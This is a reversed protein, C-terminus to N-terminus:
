KTPKEAAGKRGESVYGNDEEVMYGLDYNPFEMVRENSTIDVRRVDFWSSNNKERGDKSEPQILYQICGYLDFDVSTIVGNFGTVKDKGKFGLKEIHKIAKM